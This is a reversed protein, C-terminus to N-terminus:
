PVIFMDATKDRLVNLLKLLSTKTWQILLAIYSDWEETAEEEQEWDKGADPEKGICWTKQMLHVLNFSWSWCWDKWHTNQILKRKKPNVLKIEKYDLPSELTKEIVVTQFCWNKPAQYKKDNLEWMLLHSTPFFFMAKVICVKTLLTIDRSRLISDLNTITKRGLLLHKLKTAESVGGAVQSGLFIFDTVTEM